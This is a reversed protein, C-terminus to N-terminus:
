SGRLDGPHALLAAPDRAAQHRVGQGGSRDALKRGYKWFKQMYDDVQECFDEVVKQKFYFRTFVRNLTQINKQFEEELKKKGRPNKASLQRFLDDNEHHLQKLQDCLKPLGKMYRERSEIKKDLIM